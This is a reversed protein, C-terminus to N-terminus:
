VSGKYPEIAIEINLMKKVRGSGKCILCEDPELDDEKEYPHLEPVTYVVGTGKCNRCIEICEKDFHSVKECM